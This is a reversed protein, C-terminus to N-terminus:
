LSQARLYRDYRGGILADMFEDEDVQVVTLYCLCQPHPKGPVNSKKFIGEGLGDHDEKANDDCPDPRPHSSSLMWKYGEVWPQKATMRITSTHFANNIETRGLRRAAYSVGGRVDPRIMSAVSRAIEAASRNLLLGRSVERQVWGNTLRNTRYVSRSLDINNILRSRVNELARRSQWEFSEILAPNSGSALLLRNLTAVGDLATVSTRDIAREIARRIPGGYLDRQFERLTRASIQLQARRVQAGIRANDPLTIAVLREAEKAADRLILALEQDFARLDRLHARWTRQAAREAARSPQSM